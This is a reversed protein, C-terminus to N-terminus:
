GTGLFSFKNQQQYHLPALLRHIRAVEDALVVVLVHEALARLHISLYISLISPHISLYLICIYTHLYITSVNIFLYM